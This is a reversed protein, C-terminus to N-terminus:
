VLLGDATSLPSFQKLYVKGGKLKVQFRVSFPRIVVELSKFLQSKSRRGKACESQLFSVPVGWRIIYSGFAAM